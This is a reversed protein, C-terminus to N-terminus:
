PPPPLSPLPPPLLTYPPPRPPLSRPALFSGVSLPTSQAAVPPPPRLAGSGSRRRGTSNEPILWSRPPRWTQSEVEDAILFKNPFGATAQRLAGPVIQDTTRFGFRRQAAIPVRKVLDRKSWADQDVDGM